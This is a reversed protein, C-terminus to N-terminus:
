LSIMKGGEPPAVYLLYDMGETYGALTLASNACSLAADPSNNQRSLHGLVFRITGKKLLEPLEEACANNSLHGSDSLIRRKLPIPYPGKNLMNIDHNSEILLLECGSIANRIEDTIIGTDTCIAFDRCGLKIRYGSSDPCDHNTAFRSIEIGGVQVPSDMTKINLGACSESLADATGRSMYVPINDRKAFNKLGCVHDNHEHTIFIASINCPSVGINNLATTIRRASVGADILIHTDGEGIYICNGSSGSFLPCFRSM